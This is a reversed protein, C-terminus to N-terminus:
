CLKSGNGLRGYDAAETAYRIKKGGPGQQPQHSGKRGLVHQAGALVVSRVTCRARYKPISRDRHVEEPSNIGLACTVM